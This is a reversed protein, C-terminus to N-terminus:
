YVPKCYAAEGTSHSIKGSGKTRFGTIEVLNGPFVFLFNKFIIGTNEIWEKSTEKDLMDMVGRQTLRGSVRLLLENQQEGRM